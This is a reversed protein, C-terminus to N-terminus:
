NLKTWVVVVVVFNIVFYNLILKAITSISDYIAEIILLFLFFYVAFLPFKSFQHFHLM